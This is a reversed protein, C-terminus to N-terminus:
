NLLSNLWGRVEGRSLRDSIPRSPVLAEEVVHNIVPQYLPNDKEIETLKEKGLKLMDGLDIPERSPAEAPLGKRANKWPFELHTRGSLVYAHHEGFYEWVEQLVSTIEPPFGFIKTPIPLQDAEYESYFYYAPPCVPGYKWAQIEEEFLPEGYLALYLSQAYYLLKQVKMNTMEADKGDEYARVIFYRAIDLPNIMFLCGKRSGPM